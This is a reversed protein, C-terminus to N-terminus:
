LISVIVHHKSDIARKYFALVEYLASTMEELLEQKDEKWINPYIEQKEFFKPDFNSQLTTIDVKEIAAVIEPLEKNETYAIFDSEDGEIVFNHVGVIAESLKNGEIPECASVGTLLCHLGDWIKDIDIVEFKDSDEIDFLQDSLEEVGLDKLSELTEEDVMLYQAIMGM